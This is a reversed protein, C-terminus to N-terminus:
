DNGRDGRKEGRKRTKENGWYDDWRVQDMRPMPAAVEAVKFTRKNNNWWKMWLDVSTGEDHGTLRLMSMRFEGMFPEIKRRSVKKMLGVLAEVSGKDRINGLGLIRAKIAPGNVTSFPSDSLVAISSPDGHQGIAKLLVGSLQDNKRLTTNRKYCSHLAELAAPHEMFRLSELAATQVSADKDTLARAVAKAVAADPVSSAKALAAVRAAPEGKSLAESVETVTKKVQDATPAEIDQPLALATLLAIPLLQIM